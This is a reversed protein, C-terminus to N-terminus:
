DLAATWGIIAATPPCLPRPLPPLNDGFLWKFNAKSRRIPRTGGNAIDIRKWKGKVFIWTESESYRCPLANFEAYRPEGM